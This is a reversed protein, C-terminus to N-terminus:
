DRKNFHAQAGSAVGELYGLALDFRNRIIHNLMVRVTQVGELLFAPWFKRGFVYKFFFTIRAEGLLFARHRNRPLLPAKHTIISQPEYWIKYGVQQARFCFDIDEYDFFFRDDLYGIRDFVTKKILLCCGIGFDVYGEQDFAPSDVKGIGIFRDKMRFPYIKGGAYNIKKPQTDALIKPSVIGLNPDNNFSDLLPSLFDCNFKTDSNLLLMFDCGIEVAKRIGKNCGGAYGLNSELIILHSAEMKELQLVSEDHSGNDVVITVIQKYTTDIKKLNKLCEKTEGWNNWNLLIVGIIPNNGHPISM